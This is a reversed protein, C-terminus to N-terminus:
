GVSHCFNHRQALRTRNADGVAVGWDEAGSRNSSAKDADMVAHCCNIYIGLRVGEPFAGDIQRQGDRVFVLTFFYPYNQVGLSESFRM